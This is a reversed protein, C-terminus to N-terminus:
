AAQKCPMLRYAASIPNSYSKLHNYLSCQIIKTKNFKLCFFVALASKTKVKINSFKFHDSCYSEFRRGEPGLGSASGPQAMSRDHQRSNIFHPSHRSEFGRCGSDCDPARGVSSCGGDYIKQNKIILDGYITRRVPNSGTVM